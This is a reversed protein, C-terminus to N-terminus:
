PRYLTLAIGMPAPGLDTSRGNAAGQGTRQGAAVLEFATFERKDPDFSFRGCFRPSYSLAGRELRAEGSIEYHDVGESRETLQVVLEGSQLDGARWDQMQGRVADKLVTLAFRRFIEPPMAKKERQGTVLKAAEQPSLDFWGMNYPNPFQANGPRRTEGRPLDRYAVELKLGGERLDDGGYMALRNGPVKRVEGEKGAIQGRWKELGSMMVERAEDKSQRAFKGSLYDGEATLCYLGQYTSTKPPFLDYPARSVYQRFLRTAEPDPLQGVSAPPNLFFTEEIVCVFESSIKQIQPDSWIERRGM